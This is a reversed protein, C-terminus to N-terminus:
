KAPSDGNISSNWTTLNFNFGDALCRHLDEGRQKWQSPTAAALVFLYVTFVPLVYAMMIGFSESAGISKFQWV